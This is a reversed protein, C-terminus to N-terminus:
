ALAVAERTTGVRWGDFYLVGPESIKGNRYYGTKLYSEADKSSKEAPYMTGSDPSFRQLVQQGGKWIEIYGVEPEPSFAIHVVWDAWKGPEAPALDKDFPQSKDPNGEGGSLMYRGDKVKFSVPPSGDARAKWQTIVQWDADTPFDSALMTSFGFWLDDGTRIDGIDPELESRPDCCAGEKDGNEKTPIAVKVAYRGERVFQPDDVVEPKVGGRTVNWPTDKFQSLDGTEADGVWMLDPRDTPASPRPRETPESGCATALLILALAAAARVRNRSPHRM